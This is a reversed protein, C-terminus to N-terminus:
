SSTFLEYLGQHRNQEKPLPVHGEAKFLLLIVLLWQDRYLYLLWIITEVPQHYFSVLHLTSILAISKHLLVFRIHMNKFFMQQSDLIMFYFCNVISRHLNMVSARALANSLRCMVLFRM